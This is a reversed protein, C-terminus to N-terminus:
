PAGFLDDRALALATHVAGDLVPNGEIATPRVQVPVPVLSALRGTTLRALEEGGARGTGGALVVLGPDLVAVM